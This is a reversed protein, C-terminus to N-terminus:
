LRRAQPDRDRRSPALWDGGVSVIHSVLGVGVATFIALCLFYLFYYAGVLAVVAAVIAVLIAFCKRAIDRVTHGRAARSASYWRYRDRAHVTGCSQVCSQWTRNSLPASM